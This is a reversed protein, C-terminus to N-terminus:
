CALLIFLLFFLEFFIGSRVKWRPNQVNRRRACSPPEEKRGSEREREREGLGNMRGPMTLDRTVATVIRRLLPLEPASSGPPPRCRTSGDDVIFVVVFIVDFIEREIEVAAEGLAGGEGM